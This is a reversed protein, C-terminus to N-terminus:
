ESYIQVPVKGNALPIGLAIDKITKGSAKNAARAKKVAALLQGKKDPELEDHFVDVIRADTYGADKLDNLADAMQDHAVSFAFEGGQEHSSGGVSLINYGKAFLIGLPQELDAPSLAPTLRIQQHV